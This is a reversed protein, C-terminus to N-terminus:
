VERGRGQLTTEREALAKLTRSELVSRIGRDVQGWLEQAACKGKRKCAGGAGCDVVAVSGDVAAYIDWATIQSAPRALRYGGESGRVSEVLGAPRLVAVVQELYKPSIQQREALHGLPVLEGAPHKALEVM